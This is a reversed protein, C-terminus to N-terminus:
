LLAQHLPNNAAHSPTDGPHESLGLDIWVKDSASKSCRMRMLQMVMRTRQIVIRAVDQLMSRTLHHGRCLAMEWPGLSKMQEIPHSTLM